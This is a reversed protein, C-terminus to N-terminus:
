TRASAYSASAAFMILYVNNRCTFFCCAICQLMFLFEHSLVSVIDCRKQKMGSAVNYAFHGVAMILEPDWVKAKSKAPRGPPAKPIWAAAKNGRDSVADESVGTAVKRSGIRILHQDTEAVVRFGFDM